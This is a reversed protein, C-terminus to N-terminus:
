SRSLRRTHRILATLPEPNHASKRAEEAAEEAIQNLYREAEPLASKAENMLIALGEKSPNRFQVAVEPDRIAIAVPLTLIGDRVDEDGGGGLAVGGRVDGVDDCGHYLIGLLRGYTRLNEDRTALCACTEFMTGTDEGAIERWDEVGLPHRRLRWQLCEAVSLRKLLSAILDVGYADHGLIEFASATIYGATMLAPLTGFRCHLTLKGRRHRSRDLIDDIILAVNHVIELTAASRILAADIPETRVSVHCAFITVPRFYKSEGLFQWDLFERVEHDSHDIWDYIFDKLRAIEEEFSLAQILRKSTSSASVTAITM